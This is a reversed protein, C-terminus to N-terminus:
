FHSTELQSRTYLVDTLYQQRAKACTCNIDFQTQQINEGRQFSMKRDTAPTVSPSKNTPTEWDRELWARMEKQLLVKGLDGRKCGGLVM